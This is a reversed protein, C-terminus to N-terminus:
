PTPPPSLLRPHPRLLSVAVDATIESACDTSGLRERRTGLHPNLFITGGAATDGSIPDMEYAQCSVYAGAEAM